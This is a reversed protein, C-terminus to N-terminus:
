VSISQLLAVLWHSTFVIFTYILSYYQCSFHTDAFLIPWITLALRVWLLNTTHTWCLLLRLSDFAVYGCSYCLTCSGTSVIFSRNWQREVLCCHSSVFPSCCLKHTWSLCYWAYFSKVLLETDSGIRGCFMGPQGCLSTLTFIAPQAVPLVFLYTCRHSHRNWLFAVQTFFNM